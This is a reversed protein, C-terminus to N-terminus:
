SPPATPWRATSSTATAPSGASTPRAGSSTTTAQPRLGVQTRPRAPHPLRGHHARHGQAQRDLRLHLPHVAPGRRGDGRARARRAAEADVDHWWLDRGEHWDVDSATASSSSARERRHPRGRRRAEDVTTKLPMPKGRRYGGDATILLKRRPTTSATASPRPPSAASSWALPDRRDPRLGAHRDALEPVMPMYIACGTARASAWGEARQRVQVGRPPAGRLHTGRPRAPRARALHHRDEQRPAHRPAPGPLQLLREIEGGVFWKAFPPTSWDLTAQANAQCRVGPGTRLDPERHRPQRPYRDVDPEGAETCELPSSTRSPPHTGDPRRPLQSAPARVATRLAGAAERRRRRDALQVEM